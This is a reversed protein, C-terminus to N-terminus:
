INQNSIKVIQNLCFLKMKNHVLKNFLTVYPNINQQICKLYEFEDHMKAVKTLSHHHNFKGWALIKTCFKQIFVKDLLHRWQM